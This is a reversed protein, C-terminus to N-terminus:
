ETDDQGETWSIRITDIRDSVANNLAEEKTRWTDGLYLSGDDDEFVNIWGEVTRPEKYPTFDRLNVELPIYVNGNGSEVVPLGKKTIAIVEVISDLTDKWKSGVPFKEKIEEPTM